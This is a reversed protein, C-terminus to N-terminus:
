ASRVKVPTTSAPRGDLRRGPQNPTARSALLGVAGVVDDPDVGELCPHGPVPCERARCGACDIGQDGLLVHPVMWPRWRKAPVTPAYLSVVPTGVAAALHAPGTNGVVIAAARAIVRALGALDLRGGVDVGRRGAVLATLAQEGPGGTVVVPWGKAALEEVTEAHRGAPWSRASVSAGPHLVVYGRDGLGALAPTDGLATDFEVHLSGDDGAPLRYGMAEGLSLARMVEHVDDDVLHRVDLLSGPYDVSIGGIRGVGAMRGVMAMPLPSQHFSTLVIATDVRLGVIREVLADVSARTVPSPPNDIWGARDVVVRDVGPLLRAAPAGAPSTLYTVQDSGHAVARVTPGSLLVDGLRDMRAILAHTL